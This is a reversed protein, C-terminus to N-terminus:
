WRCARSSAFGGLFKCVTRVWRGDDGRHWHTPPQVGRHSHQYLGAQLRAQTWVSPTGAQSRSSHCSHASTCHTLTHTHCPCFAFIAITICDQRFKL